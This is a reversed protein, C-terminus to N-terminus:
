RTSPNLALQSARKGNRFAGTQRFISSHRHRNSLVRLLWLSAAPLVRNCRAARPALSLGVACIYKKSPISNVLGM